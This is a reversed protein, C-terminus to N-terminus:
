SELDKVTTIEGEDVRKIFGFKFIEATRELRYFYITLKEVLVNVEGYTIRVCNKVLLYCLVTCCM